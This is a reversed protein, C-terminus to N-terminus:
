RTGAVDFSDGDMTEKWLNLPLCKWDSLKVTDAELAVPAFCINALGVQM